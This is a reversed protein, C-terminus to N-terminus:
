LFDVLEHSRVALCHSRELVQRFDSVFAAVDIRGHCPRRVHRFDGVAGEFGGKFDITVHDAIHRDAILADVDDFNMDDGFAVYDLMGTKRIRVLFIDAFSVVVRPCLTRHPLSSPFLFRPRWGLRPSTLIAVHRQYIASAPAIYFFPRVPETVKGTFVPPQQTM